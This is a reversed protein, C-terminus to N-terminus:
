VSLGPLRVHVPISARVVWWGEHPGAELTGGLRHVRERMGQVGFGSRPFQQASRGMRNRVLLEVEEDTVTLRLLCDEAGGHKVVNTSCERLLAVVTPGVSVPVGETRGDMQAVARIGLQRLSEETERLVSILDISVPGEGPRALTATHSGTASIEDMENARMVSLLRRLDELASRSCDGIASLTEEMTEQQGSMAGIRSQMAIVTLDHAIVDHLERALTLRDDRTRNRYEEAIQHSSREADTARLVSRRLALAVVFLVLTLPVAIAVVQAGLSSFWVGWVAEWVLLLLALPGASRLPLSYLCMASIVAWSIMLLAASPITVTAALAAIFPAWTWAPRFLVCAWLVFELVVLAADGLESGTWAYYGGVLTDYLGKGLVYLAWALLLGRVLPPFRLVFPPVDGDPPLLWPPTKRAMRMKEGVIM